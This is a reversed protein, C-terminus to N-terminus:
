GNDKEGKLDSNSKLVRNLEAMRAARECGPCTAPTGNTVNYTHGCTDCKTPLTTHYLSM